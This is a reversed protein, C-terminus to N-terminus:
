PEMRATASAQLLSGGISLVGFISVQSVPIALNVTVLSTAADLNVTAVPQAGAFTGASQAYNVAATRTTLQHIAVQRATDRAVQTLNSQRLFLLSVDVTVALILLFVPVWLVFEVTVAGTDDAFRKVQQKVRGLVGTSFFNKASMHMEILAQLLNAGTPSVTAKDAGVSFLLIRCAIGTGLPFM